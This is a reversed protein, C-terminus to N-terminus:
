RVLADVYWKFNLYQFIFAYSNIDSRM